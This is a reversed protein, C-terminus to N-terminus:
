VMQERREMIMEIIRNFMVLYSTPTKKRYKNGNIDMIEMECIEEGTLERNVMVPKMYEFDKLAQQLIIKDAGNFFCVGEGRELRREIFDIKGYEMQTKSQYHFVVEKLDVAQWGNSDVQPMKEAERDISFGFLALFVEEKSRVMLDERSVEYFNLFESLEYKPIEAEDIKYYELFEELTIRPKKTKSLVSYSQYMCGLRRGSYKNIMPTAEFHLSM